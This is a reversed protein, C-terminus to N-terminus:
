FPIEDGEPMTQVPAHGAKEKYAQGPDPTSETKKEGAWKANGLIPGRVGEQRQEYSVNEVIMGDNGFRDPGDPYLIVAADLYTGKAGQYLKDKTIKTVDINLKLIKNM